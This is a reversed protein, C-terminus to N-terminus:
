GPIGLSTGWSPPAAGGAKGPFLGGGGGRGPCPRPPPPAPAVCKQTTVLHFSGGRPPLRPRGVPAPAEAPAPRRPAPPVRTGGKVREHIHILRGPGASTHPPGPGASEAEATPGRGSLRPMSVFTGGRGGRSLGKEPQCAGSTVARTRAPAARPSTGVGGACTPCDKTGPAAGRFAPGAGLRPRRGGHARSKKSGGLAPDM